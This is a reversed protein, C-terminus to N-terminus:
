DVMLIRQNGFPATKVFTKWPMKAAKEAPREVIGGCWLHNPGPTSVWVRKVKAAVGFAPVKLTFFPPLAASSGGSIELRVGEDSVDVIKSVVGDVTAQLKPVM